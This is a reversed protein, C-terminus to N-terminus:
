LQVRLPPGPLEEVYALQWGGEREYVATFRNEM